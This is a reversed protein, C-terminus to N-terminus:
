VSNGVQLEDWGAVNEPRIWKKGEGRSGTGMLESSASGTTVSHDLADEVNGLFKKIDILESAPGFTFDPMWQMRRTPDPPPASNLLSPVPNMAGVALNPYPFSYSESSPAFSMDEPALSFPNASDLPISTAELEPFAMQVDNTGVLASTTSAATSSVWPNTITSGYMKAHTHTQGKSAQVERAPIDKGQGAPGDDQAHGTDGQTDMDTNM